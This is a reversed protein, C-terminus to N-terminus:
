RLAHRAHPGLTIWPNHWFANYRPDQGCVDHLDLVLQREERGDLATEVRVSLRDPRYRRCVEKAWFYYLYPDGFSRSGATTFLVPNWLVVGQDRIIQDPKFVQVLDWREYLEASTTGHRSAEYGAYDDLGEARWPRDVHFVLRREGKRLEATFHTARNADFMFLGFTRGEGTLRIDGPIAFGLLGGLYLLGALAWSLRHRSEFRYGYQVPRDFAHFAALVAPLMITPYRPGVLFTSYLHFLVFLAVSGRRLAASPAFWAAPGAFEWATLAQCFLTVALDAKPLLPLKDPVSNFAEGALWSPTLKTFAALHYTILLAIRAFFLKSRSVLFFLTLILHIHHYNTVLRLDSLYFYGKSLFLVALTVMPWFSNGALALLFGGASVLVLAAMATKTWFQGLVILCRLNEFPWAPVFNFTETGLTSLSTDGFWQAFTVVGYFNLFACLLRLRVDGELERVALWDEIRRRAPEWARTM